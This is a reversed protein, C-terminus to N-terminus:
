REPNVVEGYSSSERELRHAIAWRFRGSGVSAGNGPQGLPLLADEGEEGLSVGVALDGLGQEDGGFGGADVDGVDKSFEVDAIADFGGGFGLSGRRASALWALGPWRLSPSRMHTLPRDTSIPRRVAAGFWPTVCV